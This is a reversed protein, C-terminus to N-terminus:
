ALHISGEPFLKDTTTHFREAFWEKEYNWLRSEGRLKKYFTDKSSYDFKYTFDERIMEKKSDELNNYEELLKNQHLFNETNTM